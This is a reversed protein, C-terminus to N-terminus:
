LYSHLSPLLFAVGFYTFLMSFVSIYLIFLKNGESHLHFYLSLVLWTILAWIEKPDWNWFCGWADEGWFSGTIIGITLFFFALKIENNYDERKIHIKGLNRLNLM